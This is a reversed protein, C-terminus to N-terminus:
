DSLNEFDSLERLEKDEETERNDIYYEIDEKCDECYQKEANFLAMLNTNSNQIATATTVSYDNKPNIDNGYIRITYYTTGKIEEGCRDCHMKIM